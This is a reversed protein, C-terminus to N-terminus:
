HRTTCTWWKINSSCWSFCYMPDLSIALADCAPASSTLEAKIHITPITLYWISLVRAEWGVILSCGDPLLRWSNIYNNKNLSDLLSILRQKGCKHWHELSQCLVQQVTVENLQQHCSCVIEWWPQCHEDPFCKTDWACNLHTHQPPPVNVLSSPEPQIYHCPLFKFIKFIWVSLYYAM